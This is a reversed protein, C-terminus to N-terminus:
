PPAQPVADLEVLIATAHEVIIDFMKALPINNFQCLAARISGAHAVIIITRDTKISSAIINGLSSQVRQVLDHVTEGNPPATRTWHEMWASLRAGDSKELDSWMQGDWDGFNMERLRADTTFPLSLKQAIIQASQQTRRLDSSVIETADANSFSLAQIENVGQESLPADFHGVCRGEVGEAKGHRVFILRLKPTNM